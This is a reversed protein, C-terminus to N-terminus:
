VVVNGLGAAYDKIGEPYIFVRGRPVPISYKKFLDKSMYEFLKM